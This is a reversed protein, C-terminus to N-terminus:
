CQQKRRNQKLEFSNMDTKASRGENCDRRVSRIRKARRIEVEVKATELKFHRVECKIESALRQSEINEKYILESSWATNIAQM